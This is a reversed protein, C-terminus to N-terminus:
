PKDFDEITKEKEKDKVIEKEIEKESVSGFLKINEDDTVPRSKSSNNPVNPPNQEIDM